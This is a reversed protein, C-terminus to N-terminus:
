SLMKKFSDTHIQFFKWNIHNLEFPNTAMKVVCEDSVAGSVTIKVVEPAAVFMEDFHCKRKLKQWRYVFM